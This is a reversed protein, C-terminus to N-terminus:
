VRACLWEAARQPGLRLPGVQLLARLLALTCEAEGRPLYPAAYLAHLHAHLAPMIGEAAAGGADGAAALLCAWAECRVSWAAVEAALVPAGAPAGATPQFLSELEHRVGEMLWVGHAGGGLWGAACPFSFCLKGHSGVWRGPARAGTVLEHLPQGPALWARPVEALLPGAAAPDFHPAYAM